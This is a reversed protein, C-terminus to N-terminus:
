SGGHLLKKSYPSALFGSFSRRPFGPSACWPPLWASEAARWKARGDRAGALLRAFLARERLLMPAPAARPRALLARGAAASLTGHLSESCHASFRRGIRARLAGAADAARGACLM